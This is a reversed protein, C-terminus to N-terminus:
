MNIVRKRNSLNINEKILVRGGRGGEKQTFQKLVSYINYKHKNGLGYLDTNLDM